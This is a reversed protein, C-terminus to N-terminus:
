FDAYKEAQNFFLLSGSYDPLRSFGFGVVM